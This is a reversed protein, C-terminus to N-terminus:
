FIVASKTPRCEYRGMFIASRRLSRCIPAGLNKQRTGEETVVVVRAGHRRSEEEAAEEGAGGGAGSRLHGGSDCRPGGVRRQEDAEACDEVLVLVGRVGGQLAAEGRKGERGGGGVEALEEELGGRPEREGPAGHLADERVEGGAVAERVGGGGGGAEEVDEGLGAVDVQEVGRQEGERGPEEGVRGEAGGDAAEGGGALDALDGGEEGEEGFRM